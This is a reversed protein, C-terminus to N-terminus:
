RGDLIRGRLHDKEAEVTQGLARESEARAFYAQPKDSDLGIAQTFDEIAHRHDALLQYTAGRQYYNDSNPEIEVARTFEAIAAQADGMGRLATGRFNHARASNPDIALVATADAIAATYKKQELYASARELLVQPDRSRLGVAKSFDAIARDGQYLAIHAKGRLLYAEAFDPTFGLARDCSVIAQDYRAQDFLRQAADFEQRARIPDSSRKYIWGCVAAIALIASIWVLKVRRSKRAVDEATLPVLALPARPANRPPAGLRKGPDPSVKPELPDSV